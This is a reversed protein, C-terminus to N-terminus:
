WTVSFPRPSKILGRPEGTQTNSNSAYVGMGSKMVLVKSRLCDLYDKMKSYVVILLAGQINRKLFQFTYPLKIQIYTQLGHAHRTSLSAQLPWSIGQFQSLNNYATVHTSPVLNPDQPSALASWRELVRFIREHGPISLNVPIPGAQHPVSFSFPSCSGPRTELSMLDSKLPCFCGQWCLPSIVINDASWCSYLICKEISLFQIIAWATTTCVKLGLVQLATDPLNFLEFGAQVVYLTQQPIQESLTM